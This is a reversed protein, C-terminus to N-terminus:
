SKSDDVWLDRCGCLCVKQKILEFDIGLEQLLPPEDEFAGQGYGDANGFTPSVGSDMQGMSGPDMEMGSGQVGGFAQGAPPPPGGPNMYGTHSLAYNIVINNGCFKFESM